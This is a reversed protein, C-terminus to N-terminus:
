LKIKYKMMISLSLIAIDRKTDEIFKDVMSSGTNNDVTQANAIQISIFVVITIIIVFTISQKTRMQRNINM